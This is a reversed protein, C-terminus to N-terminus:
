FFHIEEMELRESFEDDKKRPEEIEKYINTRIQERYDKLSQSNVEEVLKIFSEDM